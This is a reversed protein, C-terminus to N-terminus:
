DTDRILMRCEDRGFTNTADYAFERHVISRGTFYTCALNGGEQLSHVLLRRGSLVLALYLVVVLALALIGAVCGADAEPDLSPM